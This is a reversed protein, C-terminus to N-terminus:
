IRAEGKRRSIAGEAPRKTQDPRKGFYACFGRLEGATDTRSASTSAIANKLVGSRRSYESPVHHAHGNRRIERRVRAGSWGDLDIAHLVPLHEIEAAMPDFHNSSRTVGGHADAQQVEGAASKAPSM